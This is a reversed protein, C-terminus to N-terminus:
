YVARLRQLMRSRILPRGIPERLGGEFTRARGNKRIFNSFGKGIDPEGRHQWEVVTSTTKAAAQGACVMADTKNSPTSVLWAM